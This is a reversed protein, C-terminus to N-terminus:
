VPYIVSNPVLESDFIVHMRRLKIGDNTSVLQMLYRGVNFVESLGNARTRFVAYNAQAGMASVQESADARDLQGPLMTPPMVPRSVGIVHRQYYPQHFLTNEIGYIRDRMMGKSEMRMTALPLNNDFNERAQLVYSAQEDFLDLWNEYRCEDLAAAYEAMLADVQPRLETSIM